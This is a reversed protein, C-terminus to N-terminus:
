GGQQGARVDLFSGEKCMVNRLIREGSGRCSSTDHPQGELAQLVHCSPVTKGCSAM